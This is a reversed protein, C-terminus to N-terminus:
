PDFGAKRLLAVAENRKRLLLAQFEPFYNKENALQFSTAVAEQLPTCITFIVRQHALWMGEIIDAPGFTWGIKWGTVSFTKGASGITLTRDWMGPLSAMRIHEGDLAMWEYVEDSIVILDHKVAIAAIKELEERTFMKGTPNHPTNVVIIRTRPTILSELEAYDLVFDAASRNGPQSEPRVRLPIGVPVVGLLKLQDVYFDFFPEILIVEDLPNLLAQFALFLSEAAGATTIIETNPNIEHQLLPSYFSSLTQVLKPHGMSRTYQNLDGTIAQLSAEKVFDPAQWNPFGKGLNVAKHQVVLAEIEEWM